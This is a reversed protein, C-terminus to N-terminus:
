AAALAKAGWFLAGQFLGVLRQDLARADKAVSLGAKLAVADREALVAQDFGPEGVITALHEARSAAYDAVEDLTGQIEGGLEDLAQRLMAKIDEKM